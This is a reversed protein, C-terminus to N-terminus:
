RGDFIVAGVAAVAVSQLLALMWQTRGFLDFPTLTLMPEILLTGFLCAAQVTGLTVASKWKWGNASARRWRPSPDSFVAALLISLAPTFQGLLWSWALESDDGYKGSVSQITIVMVSVAAIIGWQVFLWRIAGERTM